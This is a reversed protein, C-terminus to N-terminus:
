KNIPILGPCQPKDGEPCPGEVIKLFPPLGAEKMHCEKIHVTWKNIGDSNCTEGFGCHPDSIYPVFTPCKSNVGLFTFVIFILIKFIEM